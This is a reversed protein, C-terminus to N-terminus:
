FPLLQADGSPWLGSTLHPVLVLHAENCPRPTNTAALIFVPTVLLVSRHNLVSCDHINQMNSVLLVSLDESIGVTLSSTDTLGTLFTLSSTLDHTSHIYGQCLHLESLM